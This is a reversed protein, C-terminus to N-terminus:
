AVKATNSSLEKRLWFNALFSDLVIQILHAAVCPLVLLGSEGFAGGLQQVVAVMVPLTKQSAVLLAAQANEKKSFISKHGGSVASLSRIALANFALLGLHLLMGMGIAVIFAAPKVMILLSRSRSVQMWPVLSLFVANIKSFLRRNHDVFNALGRSSERLVKGLILPVLLTLVLSKLLQATPVYVGVGVAIFKSISFPIILIGLLNSLVTMALALASNGGALQTLAVASSLTTPMCSFIALGTVFEQPQLPILLIIRSFYPTFFLISSLGFLGVPWAKVAAGIADSRLTLGSVVFIGFTSFKSLNCKDALCGLTPNVLGFAVGSTLALPLFNNSAFNMLPKTWNLGNALDSGHIEDSPKRSIILTSISRRPPNIRLSRSFLCCTKRCPFPSTVISPPTLILSQITGAM